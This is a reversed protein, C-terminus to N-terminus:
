LRKLESPDLPGDQSTFILSDSQSQAQSVGSIQHEGTDYTHLQGRDKIILRRAERFVAYRIENQSGSTSPEGLDDPWWPKGFDLPKMPAMSTMGALPRMPKMPEM